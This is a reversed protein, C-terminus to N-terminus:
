SGTSFKMNYLASLGRKVQTEYVGPSASLTMLAQSAWSGGGHPMVMSGLIAKYFM